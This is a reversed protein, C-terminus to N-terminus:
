EKDISKGFLLQLYRKLHNLAEAVAAADGQAKALVFAGQMVTQTYTALSDATVPVRPPHAHIAAQFDRALEGAHARITDGCAARITESTAFTEQLTTGAFCTISELPGDALAARFDLYGFIRELPDAHLHYDAGAFLPSTLEHWHGAAAM